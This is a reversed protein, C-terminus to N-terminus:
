DLERIAVLTCSENHFDCPSDKAAGVEGYSFFGVSPTKWVEYMSEVEDDAMPGLALKRAICSIFILADAEGMRERVLEAEEVSREVITMSPPICFRVKSGEPIAGAFVIGKKDPTLLLPARIVSTGDERVVSLPYETSVMIDSESEELPEEGSRWGLYNKYMSTVSKGEISYAVNGEARTVAKELGVPEWGNVAIGDIAFLSADLVLIVAGRDIVERETFTLTRVMALDDGAVGGYLPVDSGVGDIIGRVLGESDLDVGCVFTILAPDTFRRGAQGGISQGHEFPTKGDQFSELLIDFSNEPMELLLIACGGEDLVEANAIKM